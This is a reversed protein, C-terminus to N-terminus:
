CHRKEDGIAAIVANVSKDFDLNEIRLVDCPINALWDEHKPLSRGPLLGVDYGAAWEIFELTSEHRSGGPLTADGYRQYERKKLREVRIEQPVYVFVILDFLPIFVDGWGCLSGSNIWQSCSALDKELLPIREEVPRLETFPRETPYWLYDDTDFHQYNFKKAVAQAISSTGSGSAGFIHIKRKM